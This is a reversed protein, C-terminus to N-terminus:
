HTAGLTGPPKCPNCRSLATAIQALPKAYPQLFPADTDTTIGFRLAWGVLAAPMAPNNHQPFAAQLDPRTWYVRSLMDWAARALDSNQILRAVSAPPRLPPQSTVPGLGMRRYNAAAGTAFVSLHYAALTPATARVSTADPALYYDILVNPASKINVLVDAAQIRKAATVRGAALGFWYSPGAQLVIMVVVAGAVGSRWPVDGRPTQAGGTAWLFLGLLLLLDYPTYRSSMMESLGMVARGAAVTFNFLLAYTVLAVPIMLEKHMGSRLWDVFMLAALLCLVTGFMEQLPFPGTPMGTAVTQVVNGCCVLFAQVVFPLHTFVYTLSTGGLNASGFGLFYVGITAAATATWVIRYHRTTNNLLLPVAAPWILLGQLSSYSAVVAAGIALARGSTTGTALTVLVVALCAIVMYNGLTFGWLTGQHQSLGFMICPVAALIWPSSTASTRRWALVLLAVSITLCAACLYIEHKVNFHDVLALMMAILNPFLMRNENHLQWLGSLSVGGHLMAYILNVQSWDDWYPVNTGYQSSTGGISWSLFPPLSWQLLAHPLVITAAPNNIRAGAQTSMLNWSGPRRPDGHCAMEELGWVPM